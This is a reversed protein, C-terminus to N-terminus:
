ATHDVTSQEGDRLVGLVRESEHVLWNTLAMANEVTSRSIEKVTPNEILHITLVMNCWTEQLRDLVSSLRPLALSASTAEAGARLVERLHPPLYFKQFSREVRARIIDGLLHNWAAIGSAGPELLGPVLASVAQELIFFIPYTRGFSRHYRHLSDPQVCGLVSTPHLYLLSSQAEVRAEARELFTNLMRTDTWLLLDEAVDKGRFGRYGTEVDSGYRNFKYILDRQFTAVRALQEECYVLHAEDPLWQRPPYSRLRERIRAEHRRRTAPAFDAELGAFHAEQFDRIPKFMRELIQSTRGTDSGIMVQFLAGPQRGMDMFRLQELAASGFDAASNAEPCSATTVSKGAAAAILTLGIAAPICPPVGFAESLDSALDRLPQPIADLPFSQNLLPITNAVNNTVTKSKSQKKMQKFINPDTHNLKRKHKSITIIADPRAAFTAM